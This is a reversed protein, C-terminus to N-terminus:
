VDVPQPCNLVVLKEAGWWQASLNNFLIVQQTIYKHLFCHLLGFGGDSGDLNRLCKFHSLDGEKAQQLPIVSFLFLTICSAPEWGLPPFQAAQFDPGGSCIQEL